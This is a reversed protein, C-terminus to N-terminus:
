KKDIMLKSSSWLGKCKCYGTTCKVWKKAPIITLKKEFLNVKTILHGIKNGCSMYLDGFTNIMMFQSPAQCWYGKWDGTMNKRNLESLRYHQTSTETKFTQEKHIIKHNKKSNSNILKDCKLYFSNHKSRNLNNSDWDDHINQILHFGSNLNEDRFRQLFDLVLPKATLDAAVNLNYTTNTEEFFKGLTILHEIDAQKVHVSVSVQDLCKINRKWWNMTRSGNTQVGSYGNPIENKVFELYETFYPFMTPEGGSYHFYFNRIDINNNQVWKCYKKINHKYTDTIRPFKMTGAHAGPWCYSCKYNCYDSITIAFDFTNSQQIVNTINRGRFKM